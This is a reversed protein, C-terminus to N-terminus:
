RARKPCRAGARIRHRRGGPGAPRACRRQQAGLARQGPRGQRRAALRGAGPALHRGPRHGLGQVQGPARGQHRGARRGHEQVALRRAGPLRGPRPQGARDAHLQDPEARDAEPPADHHNGGHDHRDHLRRPAAPSPRTAWWARAATRNVVNVPQGLDKEMLSAIMRAVADTGGGAGWPVILTIPRDPFAIPVWISGTRVLLAVLVVGSLFAAMAQVVADFLQGTVFVNLVHVAGFMASMLLISPWMALRSRLAQFLVGRFMWEESLGVLLTNLLVFGVTAAPPLGLVVSLVAFLLLYLSPFWLIRLSGVPRPAVFKLDRWRMALTAAALLAVAMALNWGVGHSVTDLLPKKSGDGAWRMGFLTLLVWGVYVALAVPLRLPSANVPM